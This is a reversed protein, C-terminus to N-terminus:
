RLTHLKYARVMASYHTGSRAENQTGLMLLGYNAAYHRIAATTQKTAITTSCDLIVM